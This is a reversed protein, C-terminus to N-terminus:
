LPGGSGSGLRFVGCIALKRSEPAFVSGDRHVMRKRIKRSLPDNHRLRRQLHGLVRSSTRFCIFMRPFKQLRLTQMQFDAYFVGARSRIRIM